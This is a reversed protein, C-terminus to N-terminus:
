ATGTALCAVPLHYDRLQEFEDPLGTGGGDVTDLAADFVSRAHNLYGALLARESGRAAPEGEAGGATVASLLDAFHRPPGAPTRRHRWHGSAPDFAYEPLLRHGYRGILDVAAIIYEATSESMTFHLNVRAWGPKAGFFGASVQAQIAAARDAEIGLLRHGYPGACSCGGRAQIGFLDNLLAVVYHHHLYRDGHRVRFSVIPLRPAARDGLIELNTNGLWRDLARRCYADDIAAITGPGIAEKLAFVLGARISEVIAPTGGEERTVPDDLYWQGTANVYSVVGGGPVTPVRNRFLERRAVLVGPTQPGGVFKHPSLFVADMEAVRIPLYPGAAAYDWCSRAGYDRLLTTIAATDSLVGTVNSAASFSGIRLPRDAYARLQIELAARDIRGDADAPIAVVEAASERWPLENSHHEYPGVFVVAGHLRGIVGILKNVAGTCGSGCFVVVHEDTGGVARHIAQRAEERYGSTQRATATSESHTNAYWPLVKARIADEIPALARGSATHDAYTLRRPGYPGSLVEDAGIIGARIRDLLSENV